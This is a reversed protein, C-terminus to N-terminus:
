YVNCGSNDVQGNDDLCICMAVDAPIITQGLEGLIPNVPNVYSEGDIASTGKKFANDSTIFWSNNSFTSSMAFNEGANEENDVRYTQILSYNAELCAQFTIDGNTETGSTSTPATGGSLGPVIVIWCNNGLCVTDGENYYTAPAWQQTLAQGTSNWVDPEKEVFGHEAMLHPSMALM